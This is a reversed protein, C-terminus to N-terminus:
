LTFVTHFSIHGGGGGGGGGGSSFGSFVLLCCFGFMVRCAFLTDLHTKKLICHLM